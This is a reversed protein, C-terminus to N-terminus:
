SRTPWQSPGRACRWRVHRAPTLAIVEMVAGPEPQGFCSQLTGGVGPDGDVERTWWGSRGERTAVAQYVRTQPAAIGVRHRINAM